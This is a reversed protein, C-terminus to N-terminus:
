LIFFRLLNFNQIETYFFIPYNFCKTCWRATLSRREKSKKREVNFILRKINIRYAIKGFIQQMKKLSPTCSFCIMKTPSLRPRKSSCGIFPFSKDSTKRKTSALKLSLVSASKNEFLTHPMKESINTCSM